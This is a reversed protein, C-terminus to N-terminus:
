GVGAGTAVAPNIPPKLVCKNGIMYCVTANVKPKYTNHRHSVQSVRTQDSAPAFKRSHSKSTNRNHKRSTRNQALPATLASRTSSHHTQHNVEVSVNYEVFVEYFVTLPFYEPAHSVFIHQRSNSTMPLRNHSPSDATTIMERGFIKAKYFGNIDSWKQLWGPLGPIIVKPTDESFAKLDRTALVYYHVVAKYVCSLAAYLLICLIVIRARRAAPPGHYSLPNFLAKVREVSFAILIWDSFVPWMMQMWIYWGQTYANMKEYSYYQMTFMDPNLIFMYQPLQMWLTLLDGVALAILFVTACQPPRISSLVTINLLNGLTCILLLVPYCVIFIYQSRAVHSALPDDTANDSQNGTDVDWPCSGATINHLSTSENM